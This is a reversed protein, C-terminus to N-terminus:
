PRSVGARLPLPMDAVAEGFWAQPQSHAGTGMDREQKVVCGQVSAYAQKWTGGADLADLLCKDYVNYVRGPACGFSNRDWRAATLVIRNPRAMPSNAFIGTFCGSVVVATPANGCGQTLAQDLAYPTVWEGSLRFRLGSELTGDSTAFVFCGQGPKPKMAAVADMMQGVSVTRAPNHALTASVSADPVVDLRKNDVSLRQIDIPLVDGRKVLREAVGEVANDFVPVHGGGAILVAKYGVTALEAPRYPPAQFPEAASDCAILLLPVAVACGTHSLIRRGTKFWTRLSRRSVLCHGPRTACPMPPLSAIPDGAMDLRSAGCCCKGRAVAM